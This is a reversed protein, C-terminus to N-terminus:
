DRLSLDVQDERQKMCALVNARSLYDGDPTQTSPHCVGHLSYYSHDVPLSGVLAPPPMNYKAFAIRKMVDANPIVLPVLYKGTKIGSDRIVVMRSNTRATQLIRKQRRRMAKAATSSKYKESLADRFTQSVKERAVFDGVEFYQGRSLDFKVFGGDPAASSRVDAIIDNIIESKAKRTDACSYIDLKTKVLLALRKNGQHSYCVKGRGIMVDNSGPVFGKPLWYKTEQTARMM